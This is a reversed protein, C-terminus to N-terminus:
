DERYKEIITKPLKDRFQKFHPFILMRTSPEGNYQPYIFGIITACKKCMIYSGHVEAHKCCSAKGFIHLM